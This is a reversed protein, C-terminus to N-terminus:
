LRVVGEQAVSAAHVGSLTHMTGIGLGRSSASAKAAVDFLLWEDVRAPRHFWISHDLSAAMSPMETGSRAARVAALVGMDSLFTIICAHLAADDPLRERTRIWMARRPTPSRRTHSYEPVELREFPSDEGWLQLSMETQCDALEDPGPVDTAIPTAFDGGPEDRHFSATLTFIPEDDQLAVVTRTTFSKGDRIRQVRLTTSADNKGPRLFYAHLSHPVHDADVTAIAARLSHAAVQGGFLTQQFRNKPQPPNWARFEDAGLREIELMSLFQELAAVSQQTV